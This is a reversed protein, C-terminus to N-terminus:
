KAKMKHPKWINHVTKLEIKFDDSNCKGKNLVLNNIFTHTDNLQNRKPAELNEDEINWEEFCDEDRAIKQEM